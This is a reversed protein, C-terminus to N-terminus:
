GSNLGGSTSPALTTAPSPILSAEREDQLGATEIGGCVREAAELTFGEAFVSLRSLLVQEKETLLAYSWGMAAQLTEHRRDLRNGATLLHFSDDLRAAIEKNSMGEVVCELVEMERESLPHFPSGPESYSRRTGEVQQEMWSQLERENMVKAGFLSGCTTQDSLSTLTLAMREVWM